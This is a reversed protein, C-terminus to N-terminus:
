NAPLIKFIEDHFFFDFDEILSCKEEMEVDYM